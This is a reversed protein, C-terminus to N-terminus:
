SITAGLAVVKWNSGDYVALTKAGANGNSVYIVAGESLNSLANAETLTYVPLAVPVNANMLYSTLTVSGGQTAGNDANGGTNGHNAARLIIQNELPDANQVASIRGVVPNTGATEGADNQVTFTMTNQTYTTPIASGKYDLGFTASNMIGVTTDQSMDTTVKLSNPGLTGTSPNRGNTVYLALGSIDAQDQSLRLYGEMQNNNSADHFGNGIRTYHNTWSDMITDTRNGSGPYTALKFYHDSATGGSDAEWMIQGVYEKSGANDFNWWTINRGNNQSKDAVIEIGNASYQDQNIIINPNSSGSAPTITVTKTSIGENALIEVETKFHDKTGEWILPKSFSTIGDDYAFCAVYNAGTGDNSGSGGTIGGAYINQPSNNTNTADSKVSFDLSATRPEFGSVAGDSGLDRIIEAGTLIFNQSTNQRTSRSVGAYPGTVNNLGSITNNALFYETDNGIIVADSGDTSTYLTRSTTDMAIENAVISGAPSGTGRKPKIISM